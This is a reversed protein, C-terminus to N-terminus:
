SPEAIRRLQPWASVKSSLMQSAIPQMLGCARAVRRGPMLIIEHKERASLELAPQDSAARRPPRPVNANDAKVTALDVKGDAGTQVVDGRYVFDGAKPTNRGALSAQVAVLASREITVAGQVNLVKGIAAQLAPDQPSGGQAFALSATILGAAMVQFSQLFIRGLSM